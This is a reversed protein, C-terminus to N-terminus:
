PALDPAGRPDQGPDAMAGNMEASWFHRIVGMRGLSSPTLSSTTTPRAPMTADTLRRGPQLLSSAADVRAGEQGGRTARYALAVMALVVGARHGAGRGGLVGHALHVDPVAASTPPLRRRQEAIREIHRRLEIEEALLVKRARRYEATENPYSARSRAALETAPALMELVPM